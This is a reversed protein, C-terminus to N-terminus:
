DEPLYTLEGAVIRAPQTYPHESAKNVGMIHQVDWGHAKLYDSVMSRHCRWWVAESCMYATRKELAIVILEKIGEAFSESEMYDAYGRFATHRWTTNKSEPNVKRRGGLKKLHLYEINNEPLSVELAEKNFQPFKRSGPYSRIDVVTVINFSHLMAVLENLSHTSHGITWVTKSQNTKM